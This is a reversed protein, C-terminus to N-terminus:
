LAVFVVEFLEDTSLHAMGPQALFAVGIEDKGLIVLGSEKIDDGLAVGLAITRPKQLQALTLASNSFRGSRENNLDQRNVGPAIARPTEKKSGM